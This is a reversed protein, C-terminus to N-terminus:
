FLGVTRDSEEIDIIVQDHALANARMM